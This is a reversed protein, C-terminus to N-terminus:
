AVSALARHYALTRELGERLSTKPTFGLRDMAKSIDARSHRVDGPRIEKRAAKIPNGIIESLLRAVETVTTASGSGVNFVQGAVPREGALEMAEAADAAYLFDRTQDGDGYIEIGKGRAVASSFKAIVGAYPANPDQRPGYANFLRLVVTEIPKLQPIEECAFEGVMKTTAYPSAPEPRMTEVKPVVESSGYVAASSIFVVRKAGADVSAKLANLTGEVNTRWYEDPKAVSEPVSTKAALHYVLDHGELAKALQKPQLISARHLRVEEKAGQLNRLSGTSLDDFVTVENRASLREVLHSGIFGAGGTVLIKRDQM